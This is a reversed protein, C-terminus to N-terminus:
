FDGVLYTTPLMRRPPNRSSYAYNRLCCIPRFDDPNDDTEWCRQSSQLTKARWRSTNTTEHELYSAELRLRQATRLSCPLTYCRLRLLLM